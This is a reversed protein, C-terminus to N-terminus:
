GEQKGERQEKLAQLLAGRPRMPIGGLAKDVSGLEQDMSRLENNLAHRREEMAKKQAALSREQVVLDDYRKWWHDLDDAIKRDNAEELEQESNM